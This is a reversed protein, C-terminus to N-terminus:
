TSCTSSQIQLDSSWLISIFESLLIVEVVGERLVVRRLQSTVQQDQDGLISEATPFQARVMEPTPVPIEKLGPDAGEEDRHCCSSFVIAVEHNRSGESCAKLARNSKQLTKQVTLPSVLPFYIVLCFLSCLLYFNM